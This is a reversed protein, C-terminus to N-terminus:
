TGEPMDLFLLAYHLGAKHLEKKVALISYGRQEVALTYDSFIAVSANELQIKGEMLARQVILDRDQFHLLHVVVMRPPARPPTPHGAPVRHDRKLAFLQSLGQSAVEARLLNELYAVMVKGKIKEPLRVVRICNSHSCVDANEARCDLM